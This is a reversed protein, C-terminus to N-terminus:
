THPHLKTYNCNMEKFNRTQKYCSLRSAVGNFHIGGSNYALQDTIVTVKSGM